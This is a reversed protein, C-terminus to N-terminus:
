SLGLDSMLKRYLSFYESKSFERVADDPLSDFLTDLYSIMRRVEEKNIEATKSISDALKDHHESAAAAGLAAGAGAAGIAAGVGAAGHGHGAGIDEYDDLVIVNEDKHAPAHAGMTHEAEYGAQDLHEEPAEVDELIRDLEVDSLAVVEDEDGADMISPMGAGMEHM